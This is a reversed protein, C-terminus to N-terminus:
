VIRIIHDSYKPYDEMVKLDHCPLVTVGGEKCSQLFERNVDLRYHTGVPRVSHMNDCLYCEDGTLVFSRGDSEFYIVSSGVAHGGIVKFTFIDEIIYEKEVQVVSEQRLRKQIGPSRNTLALEYADKSIIISAKDYLDLNDIHDFHNHTIVVTDVKSRDGILRALEEEVDYFAVGWHKGDSKDRFGTDFLIIKNNVKALYYMWAFPIKTTSGAKEHYVYKELFMSEGYLVGYLEIKIM